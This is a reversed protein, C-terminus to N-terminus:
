SISHQANPRGTSGPLPIAGWTKVAKLCSEAFAEEALDLDRYRAALAARIRGGAARFTEDLVGARM